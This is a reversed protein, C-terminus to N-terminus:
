LEDKRKSREFFVAIVLSIEYLLWLPLAMLFQSFVDPGPTLVAAIIFIGLIVYKRNKRLFASTVLGLKVFLVILVPFEFVFGFALLLMGVFSVYNAVSIMPTVLDGGFKLLFKLGIPLALEYAFVAGLAFCLTTFIVFPLALRKESPYLGPAVFAWLQYLIMPVSLILAGFFSLKLYVMFSETPSIMILKQGLPRQLFILLRESNPYVVAFCIGLSLCIWILRMRLEALHATFPMKKEDIEHSGIDKLVEKDIGEM